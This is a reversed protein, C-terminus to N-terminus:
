AMSSDHEYSNYRSTLEIGYHQRAMRSEISVGIRSPTVRGMGLMAAGRVVATWGNQPQLVSVSGGLVQQVRTKLYPSQGFGGVMLVAAINGGAFRVQEKILDLVDKLIPEFIKSGM